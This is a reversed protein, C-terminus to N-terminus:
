RYLILKRKPDSFCMLFNNKKKLSPQLYDIYFKFFKLRHPVQCQSNDVTHSAPENNLGMETTNIAYYMRKIQKIKYIM